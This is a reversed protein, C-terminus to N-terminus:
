GFVRMYKAQGLSLLSSSALLKIGADPEEDERYLEQVAEM